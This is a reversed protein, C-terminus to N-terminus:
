AKDFFLAESLRYRTLGLMDKNTYFSLRRVQLWIRRDPNRIATM